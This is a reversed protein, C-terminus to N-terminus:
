GAAGNHGADGPAPKPEAMDVGLARLRVHTGQLKRSLDDVVADRLEADAIERQQNFEYRPSSRSVIVTEKISVSIAAAKRFAALDRELWEVDRALAVAKDLNAIQM